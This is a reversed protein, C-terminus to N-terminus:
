TSFERVSAIDWPGQMENKYMRASMLWLPCVFAIFAMGSAYVIALLTSSLWLLLGLTAIVCMATVAMHAGESRIRIYDRFLPFLAFLQIALCVFVFVHITSPLRSALLAAAFIAANLSIAGSVSCLLAPLCRAHPRAAHMRTALLDVSACAAQCVRAPSVVYASTSTTAHYEHFCIHIASLMITQAWITDNCYSQTLTQLIPALAFVVALFICTYKVVMPIHPLLTPSYFRPGSFRLWAFLVTLVAVNVGGIAWVSVSQQHVLAFILQLARVWAGARVCLTPVALVCGGPDDKARGAARCCGHARAQMCCARTRVFFIAMVSIQQIIVATSKVMPWFEYQKM